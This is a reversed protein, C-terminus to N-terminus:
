PDAPAPERRFEDYTERARIRMSSFLKRGTLELSSQSMLWVGPAMRQSELVLTFKDLSGLIGGLLTARHSLRVAARVMEGDEEDVWLTGSLRNLIRDAVSDGNFEPNRPTFALELVPRDNWTERSKVVFLYRALLEPTLRMDPRKRDEGSGAAERRLKREREREEKEEQAPIPKGNVAILRSHPKGHIHVVQYVQERRESVKGSDELEEIISVRRWVYSQKLTQIQVNTANALMRALVERAAPLPATSVEVAGSRLPLWLVLAAM